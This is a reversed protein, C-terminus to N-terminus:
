GHAEKRAKEDSRTSTQPDEPAALVAFRLAGDVANSVIAAVIERAKTELCVSDSRAQHPPPPPTAANIKM